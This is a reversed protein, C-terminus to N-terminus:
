AIKSLCVRWKGHVDNGEAQLSILLPGALCYWMAVSIFGIINLQLGPSIWCKCARRVVRFLATAAHVAQKEPLEVSWFCTLVKIYVLPPGCATLYMMHKCAAAPMLATHM